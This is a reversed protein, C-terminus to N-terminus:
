KVVKLSKSNLYCSKVTHYIDKGIEGVIVGLFSSIGLLLYDIM